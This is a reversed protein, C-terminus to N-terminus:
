EDTKDLCSDNDLDNLEAEIEEITPLTSKLNDPIARTLQYESIGIPKEIGKLAYEAEFKNRSKFLLLGITPNDEPMKYFDDVLNLYFNLQGAHEPKFKTAKFEIVVYAHLKLHYFLMDMFYGSEELGIPIQRGVFAFGRGLELLFKTIHEISAHEIQREHADDHLGLFDLNYPQKLLEHALKSQPSPLRTLFNSSKVSDIAQRHFLSDKIHRELSIRPWGQEIAQDAYWTFEKDDKIKHVLLALHGWPLQAVAQPMIVINPFRAAFQRMRRLNRISFGSTEPFANKLDLSLAEILKSGWNQKEIIQKGIHWYLDIVEQNIALASRFRANRIKDKLDRLFSRYDKTFALSIEESGSISTSKQDDDTPM